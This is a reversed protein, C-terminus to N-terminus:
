RIQVSARIYVTFVILSIFTSLGVVKNPGVGETVTYTRVTRSEGGLGASQSAQQSPSFFDKRMGEFRKSFTGDGSGGGSHTFHTTTTKPQSAPVRVVVVTLRDTM